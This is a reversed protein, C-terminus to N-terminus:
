QLHKTIRSVDLTPGFESKLAKIIEGKKKGEALMIAVIGLVHEEDPQEPLYASLAKLEEETEQRHENPLGEINLIINLNKITTKLVAFCDADNPERREDKAIKQIDGLLPLMYRLAASNKNKRYKMVDSMIQQYVEFMNYDRTILPHPCSITSFKYDEDVIEPFQVIWFDIVNTFAKGVIIGALPEKGPLHVVVRDGHLYEPKEALDLM